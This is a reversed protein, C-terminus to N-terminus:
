PCFDGAHLQMIGVDVMDANSDGNLDGQAPVATGWRGLNGALLALDDINVHLDGTADGPCLPHYEVHTDAYVFLAGLGGNNALTNDRFFPLNPDLYNENFGAVLYEFSIQASDLGNLVSNTIAAPM